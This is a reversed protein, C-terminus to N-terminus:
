LGAHSVGGPNSFYGWCPEVVGAVRNKVSLQQVSDSVPDYLFVSPSHIIVLSTLDLARQFAPFNRDADKAVAIRTVLDGRIAYEEGPQLKVGHPPLFGFFVSLPQMNKVITHLCDLYNPSVSLPPNVPM